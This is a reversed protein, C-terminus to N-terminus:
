RMKPATDKVVLAQIGRDISHLTNVTEGTVDRGGTFGGVRLLADTTNGATLAARQMEAIRKDREKRDGETMPEAVGLRKNRARRATEALDADEKTYTDESFPALTYKMALALVNAGASKAGVSIKEWTKGAKELIKISAEQPMMRGSQLDQSAGGIGGSAAMEKLVGLARVSKRGVLEVAAAMTEANDGGSKLEAGVANVVDELQMAGLKDAEIGLARFTKAAESGTDNMADFRATAIRELVADAKEGSMGAAQFAGRLTLLAKTSINLTAALDSADEIAELTAKSFSLVAGAGFMSSLGQLKDGWGRTANQIKGDLTGLAGVLGSTDATFKAKLEM